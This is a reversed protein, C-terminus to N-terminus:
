GHGSEQRPHAPTQAPLVQHLMATPLERLRVQGGADGEIIIVLTQDGLGRVVLMNPGDDASRVVAGRAFGITPITVVGM